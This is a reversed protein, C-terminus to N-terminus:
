PRATSIPAAMAGLFKGTGDRKGAASVRQIDVHFAVIGQSEMEYKARSARMGYIVGPAAMVRFTFVGGLPEYSVNTVDGTLSSFDRAANGEVAWAQISVQPQGTKDFDFVVAGIESFDDSAEPMQTRARGLIAAAEGLKQDIQAKGAALQQLGAAMKALGADMQTLGADIQPLAADIQALGGDVQSISEALKPLEAEIAAIQRDYETQKAPDPEQARAAKLRELQAHADAQRAVLMERQTVLGARKQHLGDKQAALADRDTQVKAQKALLDAEQREVDAKLARAKAITFKQTVIDAGAQSVTGMDRTIAGLRASSGLSVHERWLFAFSNALVYKQPAFTRPPTPPEVPQHPASAVRANQCGAGISAFALMAAFVSLSQRTQKQM